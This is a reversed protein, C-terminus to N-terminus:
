VDKKSEPVTKLPKKRTRPVKAPLTETEASGGTASSAGRRNSIGRRKRGGPRSQDALDQALKRIREMHAINRQVRDLMAQALEADTRLASRRCQAVIYPFGEDIYGGWLAENARKQASTKPGLAAVLKKRFEAPKYVHDGLIDTAVSFGSPGAFSQIVEVQGNRAIATFSHIGYTVMYTARRGAQATDRIDDAVTRVWADLRKGLAEEDVDEDPLAEEEDPDPKLATFDLGDVQTPATADALLRELRQAFPHCSTYSPFTLYSGLVQIDNNADEAAEDQEAEEPSYARDPMDAALEDPDLEVCFSLLADDVASEPFLGASVALDIFHRGLSRSSSLGGGGEGDGGGLGSSSDRSLSLDDARAEDVMETETTASSTVISRPPGGEELELLAAQAAVDLSAFDVYRARVLPDDRRAWDEQAWQVLRGLVEPARARKEVPLVAQVQEASVVSNINAAGIGAPDTANGNIILLRQLLGGARFDPAPRRPADAAGGTRARVLARKTAANGASRQLRLVEAPTLPV